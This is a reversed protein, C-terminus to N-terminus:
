RICEFLVSEGRAATRKSAASVAAEVINNLIAPQDFFVPQGTVPNTFFGWGGLQEHYLYRLLSGMEEKASAEDDDVWIDGGVTLDGSGSATINVSDSRSANPSPTEDAQPAPGPPLSLEDPM